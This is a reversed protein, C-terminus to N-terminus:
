VTTTWPSQQSPSIMPLLAQRTLPPLSATPFRPLYLLGTKLATEGDGVSPATPETANNLSEGATPCTCDGVVVVTGACGTLLAMILVATILLFLNRKM